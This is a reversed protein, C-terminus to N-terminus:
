RPTGDFEVRLTDARLCPSKVALNARQAERVPRLHFRRFWWRVTRECFSKRARKGKSLGDDREVETPDRLRETVASAPSRAILM